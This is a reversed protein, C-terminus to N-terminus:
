PNLEAGCKNCFKAEMEHGEATCDPCVQTNVKEKRKRSFEATVIGTPVAIIGYGLIMIFSAVIKGLITMPVINGYGVTTLTIISWYISNPINEFGNTRASNEIIYMLTGLIIVLLMVSLLFVIIKPRSSRLAIQMTHAGRLYRSLKFIRFIRILRIARIVSMWHVAPFIFILYTPIIALLDVIGMFSFIYKFSRNVAYIRFFYEITFLITFGWEFAMILEHYKKDIEDVSELMVGIISLLIAALLIVDFLKGTVTDAEFIIEHVKQKFSKANNDKM